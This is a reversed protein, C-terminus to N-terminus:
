NLAGIWLHEGEEQRVYNEYQDLMKRNVKEYIDLEEHCGEWYCKHEKFLDPELVSYKTDLIGISILHDALSTNEYTPVFCYRDYFSQANPIADADLSEDVYLLIFVNHVRDYVDKQNGKVAGSGNILGGSKAM